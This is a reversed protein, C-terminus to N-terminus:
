ISQSEYLIMLRINLTKKKKKSEVPFDIYTKVNPKRKMSRHITDNNSQKAIETLKNICVNKSIWTNIFDIKSYLITVFNKEYIKNIM